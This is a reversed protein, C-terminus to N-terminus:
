PALNRLLEVVDKHGDLKALEEEPMSKVLNSALEILFDPDVDGLEAPFHSLLRGPTSEFANDVVKIHGKVSLFISNDDYVAITSNEKPLFLKARQYFEEMGALRLEPMDNTLILMNAFRTALTQTDTM